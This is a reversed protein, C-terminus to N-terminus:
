VLGLQTEVGHCFIHGILIHMEQIRATQSHPVILPVHCLSALAGGDRGLLGVVLIDMSKAMSVAQIVNASQGSTSIAVLVDGQRGLGQVQRAFIQDFAYDNAVCTLVSTDTTLALAPIPDRDRTFRGIFEAAIHQSDSASGGNGCLMIKGGQRVSTAMLDIARHVDKELGQLDQCLAQHEALHSLFLSDIMASRESNL